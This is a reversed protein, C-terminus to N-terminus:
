LGNFLSLSPGGGKIAAVLQELFNASKTTAEATTKGAERAEDRSGDRGFVLYKNTNLEFRQDEMAGVARLKRREVDDLGALQQAARAKVDTSAEGEMIKRLQERRTVMERAIELRQAEREAAHDGLRGQEHLDSIQQQMLAAEAGATATKSKEAAEDAAKKKKALDNAIVESEKATQEALIAKRLKEFDELEQKASASHHAAWDKSAKEADALRKAYGGRLEQLEAEVTLGTQRLIMARTRGEIAEIEGARQEARATAEAARQKEVEGSADEGRAAREQKHVELQKTADEIDKNMTTRILDRETRARELAALAEQKAKQSGTDIFKDVISANDALKVAKRAVAEQKLFEAEALAMRKEGSEKIERVRAELNDKEAENANEISHAIKLRHKQDEDDGARAIELRQRNQREIDENDRAILKRRLVSEKQADALLNMLTIERQIADAAKQDGFLFEGAANGLQFWQGIGNPLDSISAKLAQVSKDMKAINGDWVAGALNFSDALAIGFEKAHQTVVYAQGLRKLADVDKAAKELRDSKDGDGAAVAGAKASEKVDRNLANVEDRVAKIRASALDKVELSAELTKGAM